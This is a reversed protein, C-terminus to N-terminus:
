ISIADFLDGGNVYEMVLMIKTNTAIVEYLKVIFPHSIMRMLEIENKISDALREELIKDKDIAKIAYVEGDKM